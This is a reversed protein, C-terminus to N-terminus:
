NSHMPLVLLTRTPKQTICYCLNLTKAQKINLTSSVKTDQRSNTQILYSVPSYQSSSAGLQVRNMIPANDTNASDWWNQIANTESWVNNLHSIKLTWAYISPINKINLSPLTIKFGKSNDYTWRIKKSSGLLQITTFSSPQPIYVTLDDSAPWDWFMLYLHTGKSTYFVPIKEKDATAMESRVPWTKTSYIAEGNIKLWDGVQLLREEMITPIRGDSTPGIDLLLNGGYAVTRILLRIVDEATSYNGVQSNRNYGFSWVDLGSCEEWKHNWWMGGSYEATYIGGDKGRTTKGWRDNVTVTDKVPSDNFLWSLFYTSNWFEWSEMWEGDTFIYDPKYNNVVEYMQPLMVQYVYKKPDPGIYLPNFWEFLSYYLARHMGRRTTEDMIAKLLDMQPGIDVANWNWSEPSGWLTFGEHHKSTPVVYRAGSRELIDGWQTVNFLEAKFMPAFDQYRFQKGYVRDQFELFPGSGKVRDRELNYWYWEAYTGVPSWSPVSYVGWHIFIGFKADQYWQPTPRTNLSNWTPIYTTKETYVLSLTITISLCTLLTTTKM